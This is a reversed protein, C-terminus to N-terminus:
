PLLSVVSFLSSFASFFSIICTKSSALLWVPSALAWISGQNSLPCSKQMWAASDNLASRLKPGPKDM